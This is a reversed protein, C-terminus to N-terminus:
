LYYGLEAQYSSFREYTNCQVKRKGEKRAGRFFWSHGENSEEDVSTINKCEFRNSPEM